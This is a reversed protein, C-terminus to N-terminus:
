LETINSPTRVIEEEGHKCPHDHDGACLGLDRWSAAGAVAPGGDEWLFRGGADNWLAMSHLISHRYGPYLVAFRRLIGRPAELFLAAM